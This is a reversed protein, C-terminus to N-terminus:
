CSSAAMMVNVSLKMAEVRIAIKEMVIRVVEESAGSLVVFDRVEGETVNGDRLLIAFSEVISDPDSPDVTHNEYM